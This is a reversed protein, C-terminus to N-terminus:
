VFWLWHFPVWILFTISKGGSKNSKCTRCVFKVQLFIKSASFGIHLCCIKIYHVCSSKQEILRNTFLSSGMVSERQKERERILQCKRNDWGQTNNDARHSLLTEASSVSCSSNWKTQNHRYWAEKKNYQRNM